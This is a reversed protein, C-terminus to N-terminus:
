ITFLSPSIPSKFGMEKNQKVTYYCMQVSAVGSIVIFFCIEDKQVIKGKEFFLISKDNMM